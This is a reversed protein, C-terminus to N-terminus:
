KDFKWIEKNCLKVLNPSSGCYNVFKTFGFICHVSLRRRPAGICWWEFLFSYIFLDVQHLMFIIHELKSIINQIFIFNSHIFFDLYTVRSYLGIKGYLEKPSVKNDDLGADEFASFADASLVEAWQWICFYPILIFEFPPIFLPTLVCSYLAHGTNM